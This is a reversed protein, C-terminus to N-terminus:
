RWFCGGLYKTFFTTRLFKAINKGRTIESKEELVQIIQLVTYNSLQFYSSLHYSTNSGKGPFIPLLNDFDVPFILLTVFMKSM